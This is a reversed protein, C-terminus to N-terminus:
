SSGGASVLVAGGTDGHLLRRLREPEHGNVIWCERGYGLARPFYADVLGHQVLEEVAIAAAPAHASSAAPFPDAAKVLVLRRVDLDAALRAAITDGTVDWSHPLSDTARLWAFPALIPLLGRDAVDDAADPDAILSAAPAWGAMLHALQDMALVAAWHAADAGPDTEACVARVADAFRGGGPVVLLRHGEAAARVLVDLLPPLAGTAELSGGLKVVTEIM